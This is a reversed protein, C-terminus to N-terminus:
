TFTIKIMIYIIIFVIIDHVWFLIYNYIYTSTTFQLIICM